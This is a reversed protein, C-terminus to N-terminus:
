AQNRQWHKFVPHYGQAKIIEMIETVSRTDAIEFQQTMTTDQTSHGGVSTKVGASLRTIGLPILQDRLAPRERTSVTIGAKPISLRMALICQVLDIDSVEHVQHKAGEHPRMRPVSFAIETSPYKKLIYQAHMITAFIDTEWTDLGLLAGLNISPMKAKAAREPADLRYRFDSKPGAPHLQPYLAENYTEQFMTMADVGAHALAAYEDEDMAFVEIGIGAFLDRIRHVAELLYPCGSLKPADGTLLLIHRLGTAAIASAEEYIEDMSLRLRPITNTTNFGCYICHNTCYNSLYLPTFLQITRGFHRLTISQALRAMDDLLPRAAPSLLAMIHGADLRREEGAVTLAARVQASSINAIRAQLDPTYISQLVSYFSKHM